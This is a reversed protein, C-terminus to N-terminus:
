AEVMFYFSHSLDDCPYSTKIGEAVKDDESLTFSLYLENRSLKVGSESLWNKVVFKIFNSDKSYHGNDDPLITERLPIDSKLYFRQTRDGRQGKLKGNFKISMTFYQKSM